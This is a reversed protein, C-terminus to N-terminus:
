SLDVHAHLLGHLRKFGGGVRLPQVYTCREHFHPAVRRSVVPFCSLRACELGNLLVQSWTANWLLADCTCILAILNGSIGLPVCCVPCDFDM